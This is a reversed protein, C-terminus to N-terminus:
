TLHMIRNNFMITSITANLNINIIFKGKPKNIKM